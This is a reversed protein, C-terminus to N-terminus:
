NFQELYLQGCIEPKSNYGVKKCARTRRRWPAYALHVGAKSPYKTGETMLLDGLETKEVNQQKSVLVGEKGYQNQM